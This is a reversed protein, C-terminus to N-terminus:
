ILSLFNGNVVVPAPAFSFMAMKVHTAGGDSATMSYSGPTVIPFTSSQFASGVGRSNILTSGTGASPSANDSGSFAYAVCNAAVTTITGTVSTTGTANTSADPFGSQKVGSYSVINYNHAPSSGTCTFNNTGTAAGVLYYVSYWTGAGGVNTEVFRTMSVGNYQAAFNIPGTYDSIVFIALTNPGVVNFAVSSPDSGTATNQKVIAM